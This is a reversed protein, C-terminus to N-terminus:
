SVVERLYKLSSVEYKRLRYKNVWLKARHGVHDAGQVLHVVVLLEAEDDEVFLLSPQLQYLLATGCDISLLNDDLTYTKLM